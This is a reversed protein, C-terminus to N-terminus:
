VTFRGIVSEMDEITVGTEAAMRGVLGASDGIERRARSVEGMSGEIEASASRLKEMEDLLTATGSSMEASGERVQTTIENMTRLAELIQHSGATQEEMAQRIERVLADTEAIRSGVEDFSRESDGSSAVVEEIAKQVLSIEATIARSQQASTEALRRIEDAVVSFGKGADGAHAAEIAANMALLNTQAAIGAIVKNAELLTHSREAILQIKEVSHAQTTKGDASAKLLDAFRAAMRDISKGIAGENGVMQEISASAETLGASQGVILRDLSEINKAIQEVATSSEAVSESQARTKLHVTEVASAIRGVTEKTEGVSDTLEAGIGALSGQSKKLALVIERLRELFSNFDRVLDGVEDDSKAELRVTLDAEGRALTRFGAATKRIPDAISRAIFLSVAFSAGVGFVLVLGLIGVLTSRVANVEATPLSLGLTWGTGGPVRAYYTTMRTGDPMAWSGSGREEALMKAAFADLGRYGDKDADTFNLKMVAEPDAHAIVTGDKEVLWGYGKKGVKIAAVAKSLDALRVPSAVVAKLEGDFRKVGHAFVVVPAGVSPSDAAKGVAEDQGNKAIAAFYDADALSSETGDPARYNGDSSVIFAGAMEASLQGELGQLMYRAVEVDSNKIIDLVSLVRLQTSIKSVLEGLQDARAEAIQLNEEDAYSRIRAGMTPALVVFVCIMLATVFVSFFLAIRFSLTLRMKM